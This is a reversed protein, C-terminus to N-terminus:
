IQLFQKTHLGYGLMLQDSLDPTIFNLPIKQHKIAAHKTM